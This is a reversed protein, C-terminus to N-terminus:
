YYNQGSYDDSEGGKNPPIIIERGHYELRYINKFKAGCKPCERYRVYEGFQIAGGNDRTPSNCFHCTDYNNM